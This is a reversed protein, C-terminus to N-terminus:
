SGRRHGIRGVLLGREVDGALPRAPEGVEVLEARPADIRVRDAEVAVAREASSRASNPSRSAPVSVSVATRTAPRM